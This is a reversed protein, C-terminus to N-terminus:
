RKALAESFYRIREKAACPYVYDASARRAAAGFSRRLAPDAALRRIAAALATPDSAPVVLGTEGDRVLRTAGMPTTIIPLGAGAAELTVLPGGEEISPFVFADCDLMLEFPTQVYGLRRVRGTACAADVEAQVSPDVAGALLM